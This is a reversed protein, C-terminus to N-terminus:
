LDIKSWKKVSPRDFGDALWGVARFRGHLRSKNPNSVGNVAPGSIAAAGRRGWASDHVRGQGAGPAGQFGQVA